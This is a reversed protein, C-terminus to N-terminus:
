LYSLMLPSTDPVVTVCVKDNNVQFKHKGLSRRLHPRNGETLHPIVRSPLIDRSRDRVVKGAEQAAGGPLRGAPDEKCQVSCCLPLVTHLLSHM